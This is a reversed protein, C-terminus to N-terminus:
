NNHTKFWSNSFSGGIDSFWSDLHDIYTIMNKIGPGQATASNGFQSRFSLSSNTKPAQESELSDSDTLLMGGKMRYLFIENFVFYRDYVTRPSYGLTNQLIPVVTYDLTPSVYDWSSLGPYADRISSQLLASGSGFSSKSVRTPSYYMCEYKHECTYNGFDNFFFRINLGTIYSLALFIMERRLYRGFVVRENERFKISSFLYELHEWSHASYLVEEARYYMKMNARCQYDTSRSRKVKEHRYDELYEKEYIYLNVINDPNNSAPSEFCLSVRHDIYPAMQPAPLKESTFEVDSSDLLIEDFNSDIAYLNWQTTNGSRTLEWHRGIEPKYLSVYEEKEPKLNLDQLLSYDVRCVLIYIYVRTNTEEILVKEENGISFVQLSYGLLNSNHVNLNNYLAYENVPIVEGVTTTEENSVIKKVCEVKAYLFVNKNSPAELAEIEKKIERVDIVCELSYSINPYNVIITYKNRNNRKISAKAQMFSLYLSKLKSYFQNAPDDILPFLETIPKISM